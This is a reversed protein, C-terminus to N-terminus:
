RSVVSAIRTVRLVLWLSFSLSGCPVWGVVYMGSYGGALKTWLWAVDGAGGGAWWCGGFLAWEFAVRPIVGM